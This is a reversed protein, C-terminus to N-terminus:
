RFELEELLMSHDIDERVRRGLREASRSYAPSTLAETVAEAIVPVSANKAVTLGAGRESVRVATDPQDRGHPMVVMPVGALVTKMVTGHGGHTIVLAAHKMVEHHPASSVVDVNASGSLLGPELGPGTTVLGHVPLGSLADIVNQM